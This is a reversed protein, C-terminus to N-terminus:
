AGGIIGKLEARMAARIKSKDEALTPRIYPHARVNASGYEQVMAYRATKADPKVLGVEITSRNGDLVVKGAGLHEKLNGTDIAVRSQMGAVAVAAGAELARAAAKDVDQGLEKLKELFEDFGSLELSFRAM